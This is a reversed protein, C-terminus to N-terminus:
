PLALSARNLGHRHLACCFALASYYFFVRSDLRGHLNPTCMCRSCNFIDKKERIQSRLLLLLGSFLSFFLAGEWGFCWDCTFSFGFCGHDVQGSVQKRALYLISVAKEGERGWVDGGWTDETPEGHKQTANEM